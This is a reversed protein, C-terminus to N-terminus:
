VPWEQYSLFFLNIFRDRPILVEQGAIQVHTINTVIQRLRDRIHLDPSVWVVHDVEGKRIAQLWGNLIDIYRKPSKITRECEIAVRRRDPSTAFADPRMQGATWKELRDANVWDTWGAREARIRLMQIDLTHRAYTPAVRSPMFVKDFIEEGAEAAMAQGHATVGYLLLHGGMVPLRHFRVVGTDVLKILTRTAATSKVQLLESLNAIDAWIEERLFRLALHQKELVRAKRQDSPMLHQIRSM